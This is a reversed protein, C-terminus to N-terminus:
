HLILCKIIILIFNFIIFFIHRDRIKIVSASVLYPSAIVRDILRFVEWFSQIKLLRPARLYVAKTGYEFYLLDLPILSLIDLQLQFNSLIFLLFCIRTESCKACVRFKLKRMYNKRTLERDRVWFGEHLFMIRHKIFVIDVLYIIDACFDAILWASTNEPTQFPFTSRLPIVWANYLFTMSVICLWSIYFSGQPDLVGKNNGSNQGCLMAFTIKENKPHQEDAKFYANSHTPSQTPTVYSNPKINLPNVRYRTLHSQSSSTTSSPTPPMEIRSKMKGTRMTFRKVLHHM